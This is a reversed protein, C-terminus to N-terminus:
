GGGVGEPDERIEAPEHGQLIRRAEALAEDGARVYVGYRGASFEPDYIVMPRTKPIRATIFLGIVTALAGFLVTLEFAIVVYAPISVIPKGGTVLPWDMSTWTTFAFGTAAGTLGGVLTYVRVPSQDYGLAEEVHHDPYPTYVRVRDFGSGRLDEIAEVTSDLHPYSALIGAEGSM